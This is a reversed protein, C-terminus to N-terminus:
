FMVLQTPVEVVAPAQVYVDIPLCECTPRREDSVIVPLIAGWRERFLDLLCGHQNTAKLVWGPPVDALVTPTLVHNKTM